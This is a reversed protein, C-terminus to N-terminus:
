FEETDDNSLFNIVEFNSEELIEDAIIPTQNATIVEFLSEEMEDVIMPQNNAITPTTTTTAEAPPVSDTVFSDVAAITQNQFSSEEVEESLQISAVTNTPVAVEIPASEEPSKVESEQTFAINNPQVPVTSADLATNINNGNNRNEDHKTNSNKNEDNEWQDKQDDENAVEEVEDTISTTVSNASPENTSFIPPIDQIEKADDAPVMVNTSSMISNGAEVEEAISIPIDEKIEAATAVPVDNNTVTPPPVNVDNNVATSPPIVVDRKEIGRKVNVVNDLSKLVREVKSPSAHGSQLILQSVEEHFWAPTSTADLSDQFNNLLELAHDQKTKQFAERAEGLKVYEESIKQKEKELQEQQKKLRTELEQLEVTTQIVISNDLDAAPNSNRLQMNLNLLKEQEAVTHKLEQIQQKLKLIERHDVVNTAVPYRLAEFKELAIRMSDHISDNILDQTMAFPMQFVPFENEQDESTNKPEEAEEKPPNALELLRNHVQLLTARLRENEEILEKERDDYGAIILESVEDAPLTPAPARAASISSSSKSANLIELKMKGRDNSASKTLKSQLRAFEHDKKRLEHEFQVSRSQSKTLTKQLEAKTAALQQSLKRCEANANELKVRTFEAEKQIDLIQNRYTDERNIAIEYDSQLKQNAAEIDRERESYTQCRDLLHIMLQLIYEAKSRELDAVDVKGPLGFSYLRHNLYSASNEMNEITIRTPDNIISGPSLIHSAAAATSSAPSSTTSPSHFM